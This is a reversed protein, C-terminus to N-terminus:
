WAVLRAGHQREHRRRRGGTTDGDATPPGTPSRRRSDGVGWRCRGVPPRQPAGVTARNRIRWPLVRSGRDGRGRMPARERRVDVRQGRGAVDAGLRRVRRSPTALAGDSGALTLGLMGAVVAVAIARGCKWCLGVLVGLLLTGFVALSVVGGGRRRRRTRAQGPHDANQRSLGAVAQQARDLACPWTGPSAGGDALAQGAAAVAAGPDGAYPLGADATLWGTDLQALLYTALQGCVLPFRDVLARLSGLM